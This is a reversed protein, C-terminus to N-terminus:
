KRVAAILLLAVGCFVAHPLWSVLMPDLEGSYGFPETLKQLSLYAFAVVLGLVIQMMQGGRRRVSTLPVGLLVVILNALPYTFKSYYAVLTQGLDSVGVRQLAAVYETAEPITMANVDGETRALDRPHVALVTDLTAYARRVERGDPLFSRLVPETLHWRGLSDVWRMTPADLRSVLRNDADFAQLSIRTASQLERDFYGVSLYSNPSNQRHLDNQEQAPADKRYQTEFELKVRNTEPVVWGNFWFMFGTMCLAVLVYPRLLRYLSLGSTQLAALQLEQALKGTLYVCALFVALPSTLQIVYPIANLYYVFFVEQMTAGRDLFDDIHEVYDLVIFFVILGGTLLLIGTVFRRIIHRDYLTV